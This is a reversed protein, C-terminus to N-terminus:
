LWSYKKNLLYIIVALGVLIAMIILIDSVASTAVEIAKIGNGEKM